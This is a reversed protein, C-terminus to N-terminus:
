KVPWFKDVGGGRHCHHRRGQNAPLLEGVLRVQSLAAFVHSRCRPSTAALRMGVFVWVRVENLLAEFEWFGAYGRTIEFGPCSDLLQNHYIAPRWVHLVSAEM